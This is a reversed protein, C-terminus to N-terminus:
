SEDKYKIDFNTIAFTTNESYASTSVKFQWQEEFLFKKGSDVSYFTGSKTKQPDHIMGQDLFILDIEPDMITSSSNSIYADNTNISDIFSAFKLSCVIADNLLKLNENAGSLRLKSLFSFEVSYIHRVTNEFYQDKYFSLNLGTLLLRIEKATEVHIPEIVTKIGTGSEFKTKLDNFIKM